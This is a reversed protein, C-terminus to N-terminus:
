AMFIQTHQIKILLLKKIERKCCINQLMTKILFLPIKCSPLKKTFSKSSFIPLFCTSCDEM